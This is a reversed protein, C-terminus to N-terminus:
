LPARTAKKVGLGGMEFLRGVIHFPARNGCFPETRRIQPKKRTTIAWRQFSPLLPM